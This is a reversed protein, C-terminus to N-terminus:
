PINLIIKGQTHGSEILKHAEAVDKLDFIKFVSTKVKGQEVWEAILELQTSNPEVFHYNFNVKFKNVLEPNPQAILSILHGNVKVYEYAENTLDKGVCDFVLDAGSPILAKIQDKISGKSYDIIFDAGLSKLYSERGNGAVAYVKAGTLKAFQVAFSGVGGSAGLIVVKQDITMKGLDFMSQFATLASLPISAAEAFSLNQPMLSIYSEPLSIYESYTGKQIVTRRAYAFVKDGPKFRNASYGNAEVIGSMDWGPILPLINPMRAQLLGQRIKADVPNVGAAKIRILVEGEGPVPKEIDTLELIDIDGFTPIVIAKM